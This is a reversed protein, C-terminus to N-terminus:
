ILYSLTKNLGLNSLVWSAEHKAFPHKKAIDLPSIKNLNAIDTCVAEIILPYAPLCLSEDRPLPRLM